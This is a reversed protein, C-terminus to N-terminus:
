WAYGVLKFDLIDRIYEQFDVPYLIGYKVLLLKALLTVLSIIIYTIIVKKIGIYHKLSFEKKNMLYGTILIFLPVCIMFFTRMVAMTYMRICDIPTTYFNSKLFFHVSIVFFVALCKIIDININRSKNFEISDM